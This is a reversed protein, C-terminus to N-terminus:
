LYKSVLHGVQSPAVEPHGCFAVEKHYDDGSQESVATKDFTRSVLSTALSIGSDNVFEPDPEWEADADEADWAVNRVQADNSQAELNKVRDSEYSRHIDITDIHGAFPADDNENTPLYRAISKIQVAM